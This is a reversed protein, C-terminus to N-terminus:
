PGLALAVDTVAHTGHLWPVSVVALAPEAETCSQM